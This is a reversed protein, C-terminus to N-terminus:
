YARSRYAELIDQSVNAVRASPTRKSPKQRLTLEIGRAMTLYRNHLSWWDERERPNIVSKAREACDAARKLCDSIQGKLDQLM